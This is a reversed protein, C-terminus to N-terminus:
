IRNEMLDTEHLKKEKIDLEYSKIEYPNFSIYYIDNLLNNIKIGTENKINLPNFLRIIYNENFESRKFTTLQISDNLLELKSTFKKGTGSPYYSLIYPKENHILAEKDINKYRDQLNGFNLWFKFTREGQDIRDSFRDDKMMPRDLIPLASYGSSRLLSINIKGNYCDSGYTGNNIITVAKGQRKSFLGVWRQSVVEDKNSKLIENGYMVQGIYDADFLNTPISLKLMKNKENWFVKMELEIETGAKPLKYQIVSFSNNYKFVGEIVTRVDGDEIMRISEIEKGSIGSFKSGESPKMLSFSGMFENFSNVRSGWPDENDNMVLPTIPEHVCTYDDVKISEILGTTCNIKVNMRDNEFSYIKNNTLLDFSQKKDVKEFHCYFRNICGPELAGKFVVKKRWDLNLNSEEKEVQSPVRDGDKYVIPVTFDDGWNQNALQFECEFVGEVKYPHLNYVFIPVEDENGSKQSSALFFFAKTKIRSLIELGHDLLRIADEEASKISSGPLIDHFQAFLLDEKAMNLEQEPYDFYGNICATSVMKEVMFFENELQRYKQKIRIQSTYCGVAWANLSKEYKPTEAKEDKLDKFYSEPTSHLIKYEGENIKKNLSEVDIKSPGGGHNGIGWLILGLDEDKNEQIWKEVKNLAEGKLTLYCEFPRHAYIESGDFGVWIINESPLNCDKQSPRGFIYSDFGTKKLIQVLGRSHGFSDFNIATKPIVNFKEYFYKRGHLIQRVIAEGSPMNCDPQLFWGGMIHWKGAKVLKEIRKFLNFDYEEVWKYLIAENHNFIFTDYKECFDAAIKFTSLAEGAGEDWRWLWVPDLHANCILHIKKM